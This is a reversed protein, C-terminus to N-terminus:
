QGYRAAIEECEEKTVVEVPGKFMKKHADTAWRREREDHEIEQLLFEEYEKAAEDARWQLFRDEADSFQMDNM